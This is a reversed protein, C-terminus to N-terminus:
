SRKSTRKEIMNASDDQKDFLEQLIQCVGQRQRVIAEDMESDNKRRIKCLSRDLWKRTTQWAETFQLRHLAELEHNKLDDLM